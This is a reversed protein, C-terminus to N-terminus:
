KILRVPCSAKRIIKESFDGYFLKNIGKYDSSGIVIENYEGEKALACIVKVPDGELVMNKIQLGRKEFIMKAKGNISESLEELKKNYEDEFMGLFGALDRTFAMVFLVTCQIGSDSCM